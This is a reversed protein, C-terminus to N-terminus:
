WTGSDALTMNEDRARMRNLVRDLRSSAKKAEYPTLGAIRAAHAVSEAGERFAHVLAIVHPHPATAEVFGIVRELEQRADEVASHEAAGMEEVIAARQSASLMPDDISVHPRRRADRAMATTRGRIVGMLHARLSVGSAWTVTGAYTDGIADAVWSAAEGQASRLGARVVLRERKRAYWLLGRRLEPTLDLQLAILQERREILAGIDVEQPAEDKVSM